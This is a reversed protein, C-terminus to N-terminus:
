PNPLESTEKKGQLKLVRNTIDEYEKERDEPTLSVHIHKEPSKDGTIETILRAAETFERPKYRDHIVFGDVIKQFGARVKDSIDTDKIMEKLSKRVLPRKVVRHGAANATDYPAQFAQQYSKTANMYTPSGEKTYAELFGKETANLKNKPGLRGM